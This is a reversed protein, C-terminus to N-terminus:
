FTQLSIIKSCVELLNQRQASAGVGRLSSVEAQMLQYLQRVDMYRLGSGPDQFSVCSGM